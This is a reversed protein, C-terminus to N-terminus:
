IGPAFGGEHVSQLVRPSQVVAYARAPNQLYFMPQVVGTQAHPMDGIALSSGRLDPQLAVQSCAMRSSPIMPAPTNGASGPRILKYTPNTCRLGVFACMLLARRVAKILVAIQEVIAWCAFGSLNLAGAIWKLRRVSPPNVAAPPVAPFEHTHMASSDQQISVYCIPELDHQHM